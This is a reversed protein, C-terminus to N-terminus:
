EKIYTNFDLGIDTHTKYCFEIIEDDFGFCPVTDGGAVHAVVQIAFNVSFTNYIEQLLPIKEKLTRVISMCQTPDDVEPEPQFIWKTFPYKGIGSERATGMKIVKHPKIKLLKTIYDLDFDSDPSAIYGKTADFYGDSRIEFYSYCETTM